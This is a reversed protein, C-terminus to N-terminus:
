ASFRAMPPRHPANASKRWPTEEAVKRYPGGLAVSREAIKRAEKMRGLRVWVQALSNLAADSDPHLVTARRFLSEALKLRKLQPAPGTPRLPRRIRGSGPDALGSFRDPM